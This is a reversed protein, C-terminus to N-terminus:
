NWRIPGSVPHLRAPKKATPVASANAVIMAITANESQEADFGCKVLIKDTM